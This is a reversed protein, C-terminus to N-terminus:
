ATAPSGSGPRVGESTDLSALLQLADSAMVVAGGTNAPSLSGEVVADIMAGVMASGPEGFASRARAPLDGPRLVGARVADLADHSLYGIRDAYRM